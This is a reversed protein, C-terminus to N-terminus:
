PATVARIRAALAPDATVAVSFPGLYPDSIGAAPLGAWERPL